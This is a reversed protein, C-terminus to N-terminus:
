KQKILFYYVLAGMFTLSVIVVIWILKAYSGGYRFKKDPRKLCDTLMWVWFILLALAVISALLSAVFGAGFGLLLWDLLAGAM